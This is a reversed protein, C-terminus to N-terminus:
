PQQWPLENPYCVECAKYNYRMADEVLRVSTKLNIEEPVAVNPCLMDKHYNGSLEALWVTRPRPILHHFKNSLDPNRRYYSQYAQQYNVTAIRDLLFPQDETGQVEAKPNPADLVVATGGVTVTGLTCELAKDDDLYLSGGVQVNAKKHNMVLKGYSSVWTLEGDETEEPSAMYYDGSIDMTGQAVHVDGNTQFLNGDVRFTGTKLNLNGNQILDGTVTVKPVNLTLSEFVANESQIKVEGGPAKLSEAAFYDTVIIGSENAVELVAFTSGENMLTVTQPATGNLIVTHGNKAQFRKTPYDVKQIFDGAVTITGTQCDVGEAADMYFSGGIKVKGSPNTMVLKGYSYSWETAPAEAAEATEEGEAESVEAAEVAIPTALCYDQAIDLTGYEVHLEGDTQILSGAVQMTSRNMDLDGMQFVDGSILFRPVDLVVNGFIAGESQLKVESKPATLSTAAFYDTVVMGETNVVDLRGFSSEPNELSITQPAKGNLVVKHAPDAKMKASSQTGVQTISGSVTLVGGQFNPGYASDMYLNGGVNMSCGGYLMTLIGRSSQWTLSGDEANKPVALYYDKGTTLSGSNLQVKGGSQIVSGEVNVKGHIVRLEGSSVYLNGRINLTGGNMRIKGGQLYFDGSVDLTRGSLKLTGATMRCDSTIATNQTITTNKEIIEMQAQAAELSAAHAQPVAAAASGALMLALVLSHLMRRANRM